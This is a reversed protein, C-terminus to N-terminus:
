FNAFPDKSKAKPPNSPDYVVVVAKSFEDGDEETKLIVKGNELVTHKSPDFKFDSTVIEKSEPQKGKQYVTLRRDKQFTGTQELLLQSIDLVSSVM